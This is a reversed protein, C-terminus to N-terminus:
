LKSENNKRSKKPQPHYTVVFPIGRVGKLERKRFEGNRMENKIPKKPYEGKHFWSKMQYRYNMFDNGESCLRCIRLTQSSVVLGKTHEPRSSAFTPVSSSRYVKFTLYNEVKTQIRYKHPLFHSVIKVPRM